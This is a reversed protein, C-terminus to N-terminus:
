IRGAHIMKVATHYMEPSSSTHFVPTIKLINRCQSESAAKISEHGGGAGCLALSYNAVQCGNVQEASIVDGHKNTNAEPHLICLPFTNQYFLDHFQYM